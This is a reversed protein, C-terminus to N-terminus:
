KSNDERSEILQMAVQYDEASVLVATGHSCFSMTVAPIIPSLGDSKLACQIDESELLGKVLEAEWPTGIFVEVLPSDHETKM